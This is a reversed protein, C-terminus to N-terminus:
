DEPVGSILAHAEPLVGSCSSDARTLLSEQDRPSINRSEPRHMGPTHVPYHWPCPLSLIWSLSVRFDGGSLLTWWMGTQVWAMGTVLLWVRGLFEMRLGLCSIAFQGCSANFFPLYLSVEGRRWHRLNMQVAPWWLPLLSAEPGPSVSGQHSYCKPPSPKPYSSRAESAPRVPIGEKHDRAATVM